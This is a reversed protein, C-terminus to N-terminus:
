DLSNIVVGKETWTRQVPGSASSLVVRTGNSYNQFRRGYEKLRETWYKVYVKASSRPPVTLDTEHHRSISREGGYSAKVYSGYGGSIGVSVSSKYTYGYTEYIPNKTGYNNVKIVLTSPTVSRSLVTKKYTEWYPNGVEVVVVPVDDDDEPEDDCTTCGGGTVTGLTNADVAHLALAQTYSRAQNAFAPGALVLAIGLVILTTTLHPWSYRLQTTM